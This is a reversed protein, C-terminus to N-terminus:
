KKQRGGTEPAHSNGTADRPETLLGGARPKKKMRRMEERRPCDGGACVRGLLPQNLWARMYRTWVVGSDIM